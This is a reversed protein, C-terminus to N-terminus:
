KNVDTLFQDLERLQTEFEGFFKSLLAVKKLSNERNGESLDFELQIVGECTTIRLEVFDYWYKAHDTYYATVCGLISSPYTSVEFDNLFERQKFFTKKNEMENPKAPQNRLCIVREGCIDL